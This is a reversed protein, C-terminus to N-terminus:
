LKTEKTKYKGCLCRYYFPAAGYKNVLEYKHIHIGFFAFLSQLM